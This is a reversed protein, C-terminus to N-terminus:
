EAPETVTVKPTIMELKSGKGGRWNALVLFRVYRVCPWIKKIVNPRPDKSGPVTSMFVYYMHGGPSHLRVATGKPLAVRLRAALTVKWGNETKEIDTIRSLVNYNPLDSLDAKAGWVPIQGKKWKSGDAIVMTYEGQPADETLVTATEPQPHVNIHAFQNRNRDYALFGIYVTNKATGAAARYTGTIKLSAGPKVKILKKGILRKQGDVTLVEGNQQLLAPNQWAEPTDFFYEKALLNGALLIGAAMTVSFMRNM